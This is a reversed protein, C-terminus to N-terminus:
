HSQDKMAVECIYQKPMMLNGLLKVGDVKKLMGQSSRLTKPTDNSGREGKRKWQFNPAKATKAIHKVVNIM